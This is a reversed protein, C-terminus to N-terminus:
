LYLVDLTRYTLKKYYSMIKGNLKPYRDLMDRFNNSRSIGRIYRLNEELPHGVLDVDSKHYDQLVDNIDYLMDRIESEEGFVLFCDLKDNEGFCDIMFNNKM